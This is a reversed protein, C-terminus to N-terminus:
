MALLRKKREITDTTTDVRMRLINASACLVNEFARCASCSTRLLCALTFKQAYNMNKHLQRILTLDPTLKPTLKGRCIGVVRNPFEPV